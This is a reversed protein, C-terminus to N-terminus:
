VKETAVGPPPAINRALTGAWRECVYYNEEKVEQEGERKSRITPVGAEVHVEIDQGNESIGIM